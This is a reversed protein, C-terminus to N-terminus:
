TPETGPASFAFKVHSGDCFPKAESHGCRCLQARTVRAIVAGTGACVELNGEAVYPGDKIASIRLEGGRSPLMATNTSKAPSGTAVFGVSSHSGDCYPKNKSHGCRCLTVRLHRSVDNLRVDANVALPGNEYLRIHNVKPPPEQPGGDTREYTLAGSTCQRVIHVVNEVTGKEPNVFNPAPRSTFVEPAGLM